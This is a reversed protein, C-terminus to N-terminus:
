VWDTVSLDAGYKLLTAVIEMTKDFSYGSAVHLVNQRDEQPCFNRLVIYHTISKVNDQAHVDAGNKLLQEVSQLDGRHAALMLPTYEHQCM